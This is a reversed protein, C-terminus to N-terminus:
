TNRFILFVQWICPHHFQKIVTQYKMHQHRGMYKNGVLVIEHTPVFYLVLPLLRLRGAHSCSTVHQCWDYSGDAWPWPGGAKWRVNCDGCTWCIAQPQCIGLLVMHAFFGDLMYQITSHLHVHSRLCSRNPSPIPWACRPSVRGSEELHAPLCIYRDVPLSPIQGGWELAASM